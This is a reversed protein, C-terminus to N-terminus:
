SRFWSCIGLPMLFSPLWSSSMDALVNGTIHISVKRLHGPLGACYRRVPLYRVALIESYPVACMGLLFSCANPPKASRFTQLLECYNHLLLMHLTSVPYHYVSIALQAKTEIAAKLQLMGVPINHISLCRGTDQVKSRCRTECGARM